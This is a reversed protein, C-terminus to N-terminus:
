VRKYMWKMPRSGDKLAIEAELNGGVLRYTIRQPYDHAANLFSVEVPASGGPAVQKELAFRTPPAGKPQGVFAITDGERVIRMHEFDLSKRADFSHGSGLMMTGRPLTWCEETRRGASTPETIWCGAMWSPLKPPEPQAVASAGILTVALFLAAYGTRM